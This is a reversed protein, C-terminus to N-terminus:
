RNVSQIERVVVDQAAGFEGPPLDGGPETTSTWRVRWTLTAKLEYSGDRSSRLYKVGCPPDTDGSTGKARPTGIRGDEIPCEGSAPYTEADGTGPELKLSVPEATTTASLGTGPLSATVSVKKFKAKDLWVWTPLNVKTEGEPAMKIETGPVPLQGYAYEALIRPSVALPEKPTEGEQVWFPLKDCAKAGPEDKRKEDVTAAWFKGEGQKDLNYDKYPHGEKFYSDFIGGVFDGLGFFKMKRIAKVTAEIQKPSYAPEYWCAPPDWNSNAPTLTGTKASKPNGEVTTQVKTQVTLNRDQLAGNSQQGSGVDAGGVTDGGGAHATAPILVVAVALAPAAWRLAPKRAGAIM